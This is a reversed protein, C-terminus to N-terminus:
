GNQSGGAIKIVEGNKVYARPTRKGIGCIIERSIAGAKQAIEDVPIYKDGGGGFLVVEDNEKVGDIGTVDAMFMDMCVTGAIDAFKENIMVRGGVGAARPYGDAYGAPVVAIKRRAGARYTRGYSVSEGAEIERVCSVRSMLRMAPMLGPAGCEASPNLGYLILGPRVLDMSMDPHNLVAGSNSAHKIPIKIGRKELAALFGIFREYQGRTFDIDGQERSESVAFHTFAGDVSLGPLKAIYEIDDVSKGSIKFGLRNMGTDIKIHVGAVAGNKVSIKSLAAADEANVITQSLKHRILEDYDCAASRGLVLVPAKVGARRLAAGEEFIAVGLMDAGNETLTGAIEAAGHGYGDAKVVAMIKAAEPLMGRVTRMNSAIADLDVEAWIRLRDTLRKNSNM